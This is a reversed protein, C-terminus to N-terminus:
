KPLSLVFGIPFRRTMKIYEYGRVRVCKVTEYACTCAHVGICACLCPCRM